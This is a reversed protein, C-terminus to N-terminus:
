RMPDVQGSGNTKPSTEYGGRVNQSGLQTLETQVMIGKSELAALYQRAIETASIANRLMKSQKRLSRWGLILGTPVLMLFISISLLYLWIADGVLGSILQTVMIPLFLSILLPPVISVLIRNHKALLSRTRSASIIGIPNYIFENFNCALGGEDKTYQEYKIWLSGAMHEFTGPTSMNNKDFTLLVRDTRQSLSSLTSLYSKRMEEADNNLHDVAHSERYIQVLGYISAPVSIIGTITGIATLTDM